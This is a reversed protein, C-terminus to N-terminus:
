RNGASPIAGQITELEDFKKWLSMDAKESSTRNPDSSVPIFSNDDASNSRFQQEVRKPPIHDIRSRPQAPGVESIVTKVQRTGPGSRTAPGVASGSDPIFINSNTQDYHGMQDFSNEIAGQGPRSQCCGISPVVRDIRLNTNAFSYPNYYDMNYGPNGCHYGASWGGGLIRFGQNIRFAGRQANATDVSFISVAAVLGCVLLGRTM